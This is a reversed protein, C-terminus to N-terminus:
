ERRDAYEVQHITRDELRVATLQRGWVCGSDIAMVNEEMHLGLAAWHGTIITGNSSRRNPIRFWPLFGAPAEDPPGSYSSMEGEPTSTRLRTFAKAISVLREIGKLAPDWRPATGHFLERLFTRYDPGVLVAQVEQALKEAEEISWQPLLGAHVMFFSDQRRYLPQRRLWGLLAARDHAALVDQITDKSRLAVIDESAALLFLDHNGLVPCASAGLSKIFRLTELSDPGRNVLDGVLWIRDRGPDFSIRDLLRRLSKFCGQVDGIAYTAM